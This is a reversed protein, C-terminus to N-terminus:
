AVLVSLLDHLSHFTRADDVLGVPASKAYWWAGTSAEAMNLGRRSGKVQAQFMADAEDVHRQYEERQADTLSGSEGAAKLPANRAVFVEAKIGFMEDQKSTDIFVSYTGISGVIATPSAFIEQCASALYYCASACIGSTYATTHVGRLRLNKIRDATELLGMCSGGPSNCDLILSTFGGEGVMDLALNLLTMSTAYGEAWAWFPCDKLIVGRIQLVATKMGVKQIMLRAQNHQAAFSWDESFGEGETYVPRREPRAAALAALSERLRDTTIGWPTSAYQAFSLIM